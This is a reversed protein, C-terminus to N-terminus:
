DTLNISRFVNRVVLRPRHYGELEDLYLKKLTGLLLRFNTSEQIESSQTSIEKEMWIKEVDKIGGIDLGM